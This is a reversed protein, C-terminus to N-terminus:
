GNNHWRAPHALRTPAQAATLLARGRWTLAARPGRYISARLAEVTPGDRARRPRSRRPLRARGAANARRCRAHEHRYRKTPLM